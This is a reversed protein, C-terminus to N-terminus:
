AYINITEGSSKHRILIVVGFSGDGVKKVFDYEPYNKMVDAFYEESYDDVSIPLAFNRAKMVSKKLWMKGMDNFEADNIESNEDDEVSDYDNLMDKPYFVYQSSVVQSQQQLGNNLNRSKQNAVDPMRQDQGFNEITGPKNM